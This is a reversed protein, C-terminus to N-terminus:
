SRAQEKVLARADRALLRRNRRLVERELDEQQRRNEQEAFRRIAARVLASRGRPRGAARCLRELLLATEDDVTIAITKM